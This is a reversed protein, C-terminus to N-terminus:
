LRRTKDQVSELVVDVFSHTFPYPLVAAPYLIVFFLYPSSLVASKPTIGVCRCFGKGSICFVPVFIRFVAGRFQKLSLSCLCM